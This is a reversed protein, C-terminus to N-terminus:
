MILRKSLHESVDLMVVERGLLMVSGRYRDNGSGSYEFDYVRQLLVQGNDDRAPRLSRFAVTDDLLQVGERLCSERAAKVGLERVKISDLWFWALLCLLILVFLEATNM